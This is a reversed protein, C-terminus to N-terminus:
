SIVQGIGSIRVMFASFDHSKPAKEKSQYSIAVSLLQIKLPCSLVVSLKLVTPLSKGTVTWKEKKSKMIAISRNIRAM